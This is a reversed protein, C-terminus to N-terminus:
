AATKNFRKRYKHISYGQNNVGLDKSVILHLCVATVTIYLYSSCLIMKMLVYKVWHKHEM